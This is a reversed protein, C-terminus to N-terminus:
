MPKPAVSPTVGPMVVTADDGSDNSSRGETPQQAGGNEAPTAVAAGTNDTNSVEGSFLTQLLRPDALLQKVCRTLVQDLMAQNKAASPTIPQKFTIDSNYVQKFIEGRATIVRAQLSAAVKVRNIIYGSAPLYQLKTLEIVLQPADAPANFSNFGRSQLNGRVLGALKEAVNDATRILSTDAYIGGRSGVVNSDRLDSGRVQVPHNHGINADSTATIKPTLNVQQPSLACASLMGAFLVPLLLFFPQYARM